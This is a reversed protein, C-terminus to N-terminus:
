SLKVSGVLFNQATGSELWATVEDALLKGGDTRYFFNSIVFQGQQLLELFDQAGKYRNVAVVQNIEQVGHKFASVECLVWPKIDSQASVAIIDGTFRNDGSASSFDWPEGISAEIHKGLLSNNDFHNFM